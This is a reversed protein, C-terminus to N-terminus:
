RHLDKNMQYLGTANDKAFLDYQELLEKATKEEELQETVFWQLFSRTLIDNDDCAQQYIALILSTVLKEHEVQRALPERLDAFTCDPAEIPLLQFSIERDHLYEAFKEAHEVEEQAQAEFWAHFGDLGKSRYYEAIGYYFYASYFEKNIQQEILQKLENTM